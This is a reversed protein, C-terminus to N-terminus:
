EENLRFFINLEWFLWAIQISSLKNTSLEDENRIFFVILTPFVVLWGYFYLSCFKNEILCKDKIYFM